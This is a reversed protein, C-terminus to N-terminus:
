TMVLNERISLKGFKRVWPAGSARKARSLVAILQIAIARKTQFHPSFKDGTKVQFLVSYPFDCKKTHFLTLSKPIIDRRVAGGCNELAEEKWGSEHNHMPEGDGVFNMSM